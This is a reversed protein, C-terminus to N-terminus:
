GQGLCVVATDGEIALKTGFPASLGALYELVSRDRTLVPFGIRSRPQGMGLSIPYLRIETIKGDEATFGAMVSRWINPQTVYGRTGNKSRNDMYEGVRTDYAMAANEYADAPQLRVTETQFIFNGLSYFIVKGKYLEIGRLEHPGHGLIADAGADICAYCFMKYFEAPETIDEQFGEHSHISVLVYDAQRRAERIVSTIRDVDRKIPETRLENVSDCTFSMDDFRLRNEPLPQSYGNRISREKIANMHTEDAIRKLINFYHPEVHYTKTFRLPNLGPRGKVTPGQSGAAGSEHFSSSVGIMAIRANGTELYAPESADHLNRGTGAYLMDRKKLNQITAMVGGHSYDCSHNNATNYLNFGFKKLDDLIEPEAMAWTGGSFAAPFGEQNHITIELNNFRVDHAAILAKLDDFGEYGCEPLRRTMFSDGTAIFTTKNGM